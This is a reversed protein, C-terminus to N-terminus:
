IILLDIIKIKINKAFLCYAIIKADFKETYNIYVMYKAYAYAKLSLFKFRYSIKISIITLKINYQFYAYVPTSLLSCSNNREFISLPIIRNKQKTLIIM